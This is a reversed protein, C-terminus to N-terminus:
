GGVGRGLLKQYFAFLRCSLKARPKLRYTTGDFDVYGLKVLPDLRTMIFREDTVEQALEGFTMAGNRKILCVIRRSPSEIATSYYLVLYFPILLLFLIGGTKQLPIFWWSAVEGASLFDLYKATLSYALIPAPLSYVFAAIQLEGSKQRRSLFLHAGITLVFFGLASLLYLM